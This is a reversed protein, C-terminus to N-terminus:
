FNGFGPPENGLGGTIEIRVWILRTWVVGNQHV